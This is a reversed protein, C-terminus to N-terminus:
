KDDVISTTNTSPSSAALFDDFGRAFSHPNHGDQRSNRDENLCILRSLQIM